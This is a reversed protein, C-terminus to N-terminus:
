NSTKLFGGYCDSLLCHLLDHFQVIFNEGLEVPTNCFEWPNGGSNFDIIVKIGNKTRLTGLLFFIALHCGVMEPIIKM